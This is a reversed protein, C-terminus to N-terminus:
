LKRAVITSQGAYYPILKRDVNLTKLIYVLIRSVIKSYLSIMNALYGFELYQWHRKSYITKFGTKALLNNLSNKSFYYLHVSLFFWWYKGTLRAPLSGIDPYNILLLGGSKLLKNALTLEEKPDYVHELVDWYTIIDFFNNQFNQKELTGQYFKLGKKKGSRALEQSLEVGYAVWSRNKSVEVFVGNAAGIDLIKGKKEYLREILKIGNEFTIKRGLEQSSYGHDFAEQYAKEIQEEPFRPSVFVLGCKKCKVIKQTGRVGGAASFVEMFSINKVQPTLIVEVEKGDCINCPVETLEM